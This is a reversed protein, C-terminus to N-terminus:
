KNNLNESVVRQCEAILEEEEKKSAKPPVKIPKGIQIKAPGSKFKSSGKPLINYANHITVPVIDKGSRFALMFAGKKFEGLSGDQSRTGEPFVIVSAGAKIAKVANNISEIAKRPEERVIGIFSSKKLGFGFIPFKELEKKYIIRADYKLTSLLIPIDTMSTHNSIFVYNSKPDLNELGEITIKIGIILVLFKSWSRAFRAFTQNGFLMSATLAISVYIITGIIIILSKIYYM